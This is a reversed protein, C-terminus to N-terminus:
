GPCILLFIFFMVKILSYTEPHSTLQNLLYNMITLGSKWVSYSREHKLAKLMRLVLGYNLPSTKLFAPLNFYDDYIQARNYEHILTATNPDELVEILAEWNAEDYNVRYYGTAQNNVVIWSASSNQIKITLSEESDLLFAVPRTEEFNNELDTSYSIPINWKYNDGSDWLYREQTITLQNNKRTVTIIPFGPQQHWGRFLETVPLPLKASSEEVAKNFNEM